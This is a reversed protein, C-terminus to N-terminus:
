DREFIVPFNLIKFSIKLINHSIQYKTLSNRTKHKIHM